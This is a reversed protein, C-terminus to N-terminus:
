TMLINGSKPIKSLFKAKIKKSHEMEKKILCKPHSRDKRKM